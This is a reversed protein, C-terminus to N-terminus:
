GAMIPLHIICETGLGLESRLQITGGHSEVIKQVIALGLGTGSKKTTQFPRFLHPQIDRPIGKGTDLISVAMENGRHSASIVLNGGEPMAEYANLILNYLMQKIRSVDGYFRLPRKEFTKFVQIRGNKQPSNEMVAMVEEIAQALDFHERQILNVRTYDLISTLINKLRRTEKVVCQMLNKNEESLQPELEQNLLEVTGSIATLPNKIEHAIKATLEGLVSLQEQNKLKKELRYIQRSFYTGLYGVIGFITIRVLVLYSVPFWEGPTYYPRARLGLMPIRIDMFEYFILLTFVVSTLIATLMCGPLPLVLSAGLITTVYFVIFVSDVGGTFHVLISQWVLDVAIQTYALVLLKKHSIFWLIYFFSLLCISIVLTSFLIRLDPYNFFGLCLLIAAILLRAVIFTRVHVVIVDSIM